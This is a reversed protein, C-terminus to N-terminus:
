WESDSNEDEKEEVEDEVDDFGDDDDSAEVRKGWANIGLKSLERETMEDSILTRGDFVINPENADLFDQLMTGDKEKMESGFKGDTSCFHSVSSNTFWKYVNVYDSEKAFRQISKKKPNAKCYAKTNKICADIYKQEDSDDQEKSTQANEKKSTVCIQVKKDLLDKFVVADETKEKGYETFTIEAEETNSFLGVMLNKEDTYLGLITLLSKIKNIGFHNFKKGNRVYFTKSDKGRVMYKETLTKEDKDIFSLEIMEVKSKPFTIHKAMTIKVVRAGYGVIFPSESNGGFVSEKVEEVEEDELWSASLDQSM